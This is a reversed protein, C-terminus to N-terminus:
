CDASSVPVRGGHDGVLQVVTAATSSYVKVQTMDYRRLQLEDHSVVAVWSGAILHHSLTSSLVNAEILM